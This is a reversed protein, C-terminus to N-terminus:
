QGAPNGLTTVRAYHRAAAFWFMPVVAMETGDPRSARPASLSADWRISVPEGSIATDLQGAAEIEGATFAFADDGEAVTYVTEKPRHRSDETRRGSLGQWRSAGYLRMLLPVSTDRGLDM